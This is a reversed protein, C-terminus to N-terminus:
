SRWKATATSPASPWALEPVSAIPGQSAIGFGSLLWGERLTDRFLPEHTRPTCSAVVVRNLGQEKIRETLRMQTDQSCTYLNHEAYVVGPLTRAYEVVEEVNVVAGINIGCNCVFVGIRADEDSVDIEAPTEVSRTLTNRGAALRAGAAAYIEATWELSETFSGAGPCVVLYDQIDTRGRAHAGGGYIQIQPM